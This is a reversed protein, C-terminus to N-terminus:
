SDSSPPVDSTPVLFSNAHQESALDVLHLHGPTRDVHIDFVESVTGDFRMFAVIEGSELDVVWLGSHLPESTDTLPIGDFVSERVKSLGVLAYRDIFALGRTFGPLKTVVETEGTEPDVRGLSGRGSELVWLQDRYWRPSHPMCLGSAIIEDSEVDILLGGFAKTDRWGNATDSESFATVYRPRGDRMALGNLHCRDEARLESVFSPRWRPVFSHDADLTALCSFRTAVLWLEDDVDYAMEHISVNGTHHRDHLVYCSGYTGEPKMRRAAGPQNRYRWVEDNAGIALTGRKSRAIGMPRPMRTFHTNLRDDLMRISIVSGSQYTSLLVTADAKTLLEAVGGTHVSSLRERGAEARQRAGPRGPTAPAVDALRKARRETEELGPLVTALEAENRRWKEPDPPTLTHRSLPLPSDLRTDWRLDAFRCLRRIEQNPEAVLRDYDVTTWRGPAVRDLDDLVKNTTYEWQRACIEELPAGILDRWGPILLLSWPLGEWGPLDPYTVFGGSRWADMMSSVEDRANRSLFIYRADPFLQDMFEIRLANKPTKEIVRLFRGNMPPPTGRRDRLDSFFLDRLRRVVPETADEATLVNSDWGRHEPRLAAVSEILMHSEKGITFADPAQALTEFLLTSGARPPSVIIVPRDFRQDTAVPERVAGAARRPPASRRAGSPIGEIGPNLAADVFLARTVSKASARNYPIVADRLEDLQDAFRQREALFDDLGSSPGHISWLTRWGSVFDLTAERIAAAEDNEPLLPHLRQAYSELQGPAVVAPLNAQETLLFRAGGPEHEIEVPEGGHEVAHWFAPSGVTDIVLHVRHIDSPNLVNHRRFTDFVWSEGAAMHTEADGCQFVVQDSTIIPVHIRVRDFWYAHVDFHPTAEGGPEIRMLRTRGVPVGFAAITQALYSDLALWTTPAHVGGISDDTHDGGRNVLGVATNGVHGTPHARWADDPLSEVEARLRDADFRYPLKVFPKKLLM